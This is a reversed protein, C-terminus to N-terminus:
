TSLGQKASLIALPSCLISKDEQLQSDLLDGSAFNLNTRGLGSEEGEKEEREIFM